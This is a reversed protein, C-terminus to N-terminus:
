TIGTDSAGKLIAKSTGGTGDVSVIGHTRIRADLERTFRGGSISAEAILALNSTTTVGSSTVKWAPGITPDRTPPAPGSSRGRAPALRDIHCATCGTGRSSM